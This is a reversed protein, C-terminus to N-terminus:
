RKGVGRREHLFEAPRQAAFVGVVAQQEFTQDFLGHGADVQQLVVVQDVHVLRERPKAAHGALFQDAARQGPHRRRLLAVRQHPLVLPAQGSAVLVGGEGHMQLQGVPLRPGDLDMAPQDIEAALGRHDADADVGRQAQLPLLFQLLRLRRQRLQDAVDFRHAFGLPLADGHLQVVGHAAHQGGQLEVDGAQGAVDALRQGSVGVAIGAGVQFPLHGFAQPQHLVGDGRDPLDGLVQMGAGQRVQAQGRGDGIMQPLELRAVAHGAAM